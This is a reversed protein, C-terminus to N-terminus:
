QSQSSQHNRNKEEWEPLIKWLASDSSALYRLDAAQKALPHYPYTDMFLTYGQGARARDLLVEDFTLAMSFLALAGESQEPFMKHIEQYRRVAFLARGPRNRELDAALLLYHASLSDKPYNVAFADFSAIAETVLLTDEEISELSRVRTEYERVQDAESQCAATLMGLGLLLIKHMRM